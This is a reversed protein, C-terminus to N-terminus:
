TGHRAVKDSMDRDPGSSLRDIATVALMAAPLLLAAGHVLGVHAADSAACHIHLVLGGLAGAAGGLALLVRWGNVLLLRRLSWLGLAVPVVVVGLSTALCRGAATFFGGLSTAQLAGGALPHAAIALDLGVLAGLMLATVRASTTGSPLVQGPPPVLACWLLALFTAVSAAAYLAFPALPLRVLDGRVGLKWVFAAAYSLSAGAVGILVRAPRRTRIPRLGALARELAPSPPPTQV